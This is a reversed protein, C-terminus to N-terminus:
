DGVGEGRERAIISEWRSVQLEVNGKRQSAMVYSSFMQQAEAGVVFMGPPISAPADSFTYRHWMWYLWKLEPTVLPLPAFFMM